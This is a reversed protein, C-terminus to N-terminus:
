KGNRRIITVRMEHNIDLTDFKGMMEFKKKIHKRINMEDSDKANAIGADIDDLVQRINGYAKYANLYEETLAKEIRALIVSEPKFAQYSLKRARFHEELAAWNVSGKGGHLIVRRKGKLGVGTVKPVHKAPVPSTGNNTVHKEYLEHVNDSIAIDSLEPAASYHMQRAKQATLQDSVMCFLAEELGDSDHRYVMRTALPTFTGTPKRKDRALGSKKISYHLMFNIIDTKDDLKGTDKLSVFRHVAENALKKDSVIDMTDGISSYQAEELAERYNNELSDRNVLCMMTYHAPVHARPVGVKPKTPNDILEFTAPIFGYFPNTTKERGLKSGDWKFSATWLSFDANYAHEAYNKQMVEALGAAQEMYERRKM